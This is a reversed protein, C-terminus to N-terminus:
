IIVVTGESKAMKLLVNHADSLKQTDGILTMKLTEVLAEKM